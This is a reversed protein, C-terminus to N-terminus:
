GCPGPLACGRFIQLSVCYPCAKTDMSDGRAVRTQTHTHAHQVAAPLVYHVVGPGFRLLLLLAEILYGSSAKEDRRRFMCGTSLNIRLQKVGELLESDWQSLLLRPSKVAHNPAARLVCEKLMCSSCRRVFTATSATNSLSLMPVVKWFSSSSAGRAMDVREHTRHVSHCAPTIKQEILSAMFAAAPM